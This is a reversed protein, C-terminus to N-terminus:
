MASLFNFFVETNYNYSFRSYNNFITRINFCKFECM